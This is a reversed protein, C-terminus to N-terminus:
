RGGRKQKMLNAAMIDLNDSSKDSKVKKDMQQEHFKKLASRYVFWAEVYKKSQLNYSLAEGVEVDYLYEMYWDLIDSSVWLMPCSYFFEEGDAWM